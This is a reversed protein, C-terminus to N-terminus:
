NFQVSRFFSSRKTVKQTKSDINIPCAKTLDFSMCEGNYLKTYKNITNEKLLKSPIGKMRIHMGKVDNGDCALIDLYSKKGLFISETAYINGKSGKLDFDIHFQGMHKGILEKGYKKKFAEALKSVANYDIHMSDTDQYWINAHIDEALCMVQNMIHKSADLVQVGLHAPSFNYIMSNYEEFLALNNNIPTKSIMKHINKCMYDNIKKQNGSVFMKRKVIPKMLLKGYSSNMMLKLVVQLSNGESKYKLRENFM